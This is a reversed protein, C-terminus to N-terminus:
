HLCGHLPCESSGAQEAVLAVTAASGVVTAVFGTVTGVAGAVVAEGSALPNTVDSIFDSGCAADCTDAAPEADDQTSADAIPHLPHTAGTQIVGFEVQLVRGLRYRGRVHHLNTGAQPTPRHHLQTAM